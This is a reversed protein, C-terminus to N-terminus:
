ILGNSRSGKRIEETVQLLEQMELLRPVGHGCGRRLGPSGQALQTTWWILSHKGVWLCHGPAERHGLVWGVVTGEGILYYLKKTWIQWLLCLLDQMFVFLIICCFPMVIAFAYTSSMNAYFVYLTFTFLGSDWYLLFLLIWYGMKFFWYIM